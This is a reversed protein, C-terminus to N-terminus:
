LIKKGQITQEFISFGKKLDKLSTNYSPALIAMNEKVVLYIGNNFFEKWTPAEELDIAALLGIQRTAKVKPNKSIQYVLKQFNKILNQHQKQFKPTEFFKLIEYLCILGLPHAYNTMGASLTRQEFEESLQPAFWCAGFPIMGATIGKSLCVIDPSLNYHHFGFKKGTRYFGCIVEDLILLIKYKKCLYSIGDWWNQHPIIVGNAGTITELCFASIKEAGIKKIIEETVKLDPDEEPEPIRATWDDITFHDNQRWDGTVSLAGLTAGHYSKKRALIIKKGSLQRALKFANELSEAGSTTYFIKGNESLNLHELLKESAQNKLTFVSKPSCLPIEELQNKIAKKLFLPSHGFIAQFSISSLDLVERDDKLIIYAGKGSKQEFYDPNKQQSWTFLYPFQGM